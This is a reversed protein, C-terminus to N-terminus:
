YILTRDTVVTEKETEKPEPITIPDPPAISCILDYAQPPDLLKATIEDAWPDSMTHLDCLFINYYIDDSEWSVSTLTGGISYRYYIDKYCYYSMGEKEVKTMDSSNIDAEKLEIRGSLEDGLKDKSYIYICIECVDSKVVYFLLEYSGWRLSSFYDFEGLCKIKDYTIFEEPLRASNLFHLYNALSNTYLRYHYNYQLGDQGIINGNEDFMFEVLTEQDKQTEREGTNNEGKSPQAVNCSVLLICLALFISIIIYRRM